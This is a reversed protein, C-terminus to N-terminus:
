RLLASLLTWLGCSWLTILAVILGCTAVARRPFGGAGRRHLESQSLWVDYMQTTGGPHLDQFYEWLMRNAAVQRPPLSGWTDGAYRQWTDHLTAMRDVTSKQRALQDRDVMLKRTLDAHERQALDAETALETWVDRVTRGTYEPHRAFAYELLPRPADLQGGDGGGLRGVMDVGLWATLAVLGLGTLSLVLEFSSPRHPADRRLYWSTAFLTLVVINGVAHWKGIQKTRSDDPLARWDIYGVLAAAIGGLVGTAILWYAQSAWWGNYRDDVLWGATRVRHLVDFGVSTALLGLPFVTLMPHIPHDFLNARSGM